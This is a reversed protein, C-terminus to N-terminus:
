FQISFYLFVFFFRSFSSCITKRVKHILGMYDEQEFEEDTSDLEEDFRETTEVFFICALKVTKHYSGLAAEALINISKNDRWIKKAYLKMMIKVVRKGLEDDGEKICKSFHETLTRHIVSVKGGRDHKKILFIIHKAVLERLNKDELNLLKTYFKIADDCKWFGKKSLIILSQLAKHRNLYHMQAAYNELLNSQSQILFKLDERFYEFVQALFISHKALNISRSTPNRKFNNYHMFYNKILKIMEEHFSEPNKKVRSVLLNLDKTAQQFKIEEELRQEETLTLKKKEKEKKQKEIKTSKQNTVQDEQNKDNNNVVEVEEVVDFDDTLNTNYKTEKNLEEQEM